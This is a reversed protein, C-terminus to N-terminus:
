FNQDKLEAMKNEASVKAEYFYTMLVVPISIIWFEVTYIPHMLAITFGATMTVIASVWELITAKKELTM